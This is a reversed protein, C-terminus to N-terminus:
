RNRANEWKDVVVWEDKARRKIVGRNQIFGGGMMPVTELFFRTEFPGDGFSNLRNPDPSVDSLRVIQGIKVLRTEVTKPGDQCIMENSVSIDSSGLSQLLKTQGINQAQACLADISGNRPGTAEGRLTHWQGQVLARLEVSCRDTDHGAPFISRRIDPDIKDIRLQTAKLSASTVYCTALAQGSVLLATAVALQRLKM